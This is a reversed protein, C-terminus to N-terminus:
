LRYVEFLIYRKSSLKLPYYEHSFFNKKEITSYLILAEFRNTFDNQFSTKKRLSNKYEEIEIEDIKIDLLSSSDPSTSFFLSQKLDRTDNKVNLLFESVLDSSSQQNVEAFMKSQGIILLTFLFLIYKLFSKKM